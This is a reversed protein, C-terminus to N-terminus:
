AKYGIRKKMHEVFDVIESCNPCFRSGLLHQIACDKHFGDGCPFNIVIQNEEMDQFCIM